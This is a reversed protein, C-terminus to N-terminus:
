VTWNQGIKRTHIYQRELSIVPNLYIEGNTEHHICSNKQRNNQNTQRFTAEETYMTEKYTEKRRLQHLNGVKHKKFFLIDRLRFQQTQNM